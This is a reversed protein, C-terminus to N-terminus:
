EACRYAVTWPAWLGSTVQHALAGPLSLETTIRSWNGDRCRATMDVPPSVEILQAVVNHHWQSYVLADGAAPEGSEFHITSCACTLALVFMFSTTRILAM